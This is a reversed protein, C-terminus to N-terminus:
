FYKRIFNYFKTNIKQKFCAKKHSSQRNELGYVAYGVYFCKRKKNVAKYIINPIKNM